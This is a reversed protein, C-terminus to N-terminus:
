KINFFKLTVFFNRGEEPYGEVLSYNKDFVNNVGAEVSAYKWVRVDIITNFLAFGATSTGYSTSYRSSNYEGSCLISLRKIPSYQVYGFFKSKPIDTIYIGTNTLNRKEIFTYNLGLQLNKLISYNLDAEAGTIEGKGANQMQSKGPEVNSISTIINNINSYFVATKIKVKDSFHAAYNMEFNNASEPNLEPNPIATGMRYSYRDKITAFRTKHSVCLGIRHHDNITYFIGLQANFAANAPVSEFATIEDTTKNYDDAQINKRIDYSIGPVILLHNNIRVIDEAAISITNDEIRKVPEDINNERHVDTKYQVSFKIENKPILSTGYEVIGGYTYDNYFSQFAYPKNQTTYTSDDYSYFANRFIDYYIRSKIFNKANIQTNSLFYFTEKDWYPTQWYRPKKLLSNLTDDGAYVPIGKEGQQNIYGLVYEQNQKPTWGVKLNLKHDTRYSNEREGGNEHAQPKFNKSLVFSNRHLYSFGGQIYVKGLNSGINVNCRYGNTNIMGLSGNYEIKQVPKLSILNIAGGLSNPGYLMSSFGKSVDIVSLDFTTFRALDVYGDYPVYVPIGDMYVPVARLDFGRVTVMSENRQGSSSLNVGPLMSLTHSVDLKNQTEIEQKTIRETSNENQNATM